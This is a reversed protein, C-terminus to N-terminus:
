LHVHASLAAVPEGDATEDAWVDDDACTLACISAEIPAPPDGYDIRPERRLSDIPGPEPHPSSM